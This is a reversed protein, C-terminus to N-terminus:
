TNDLQNVGYQTFLMQALMALLLCCTMMIIITDGTSLMSECARSIFSEFWSEEQVM